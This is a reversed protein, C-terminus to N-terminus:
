RSRFSKQIAKSARACLWFEKSSKESIGISQKSDPITILKLSALSNLTTSLSTRSYAETRTIYGMKIALKAHDQLEQFFSAYSIENTDSQRKRSLHLHVWLHSELTSLLAEPIFIGCSKNVLQQRDQVKKIWGLTVYRNILDCMNESFEQDSPLLYDHKLLRGFPLIRELTVENYLLESIAILSPGVLVHICSNKYFDATFRKPGPVSFIEQGLCTWKEVLGGRLLDDLLHEEGNMFLNLSETFGAEGTSKQSSRVVEIVQYLNRITEVLKKRELVYGPSMLLAALALGTLTIDGQDKIRRVILNGFEQVQFRKENSESIYRALSLPESFRVVVEGYKTRLLSGASLLSSLSEKRKKVGTNEEGFIKGEVVNEYTVSVPVFMIDRRIGKLQVECITKLLGLKPPLTRGSRSRTGEIFFELLHGRKVLYSVYRRLVIAHIRDNKVARKIFFAGVGRIFYGVPWFNLNEGAAVLPPSLNSRYLVSSIIIYDLHSRHAPVLVVPSNRAMTEFRELGCVRVRSFLRSILLQTIIDLIYFCFRLPNAAMSYFAKRAQANMSEVSTGSREAALRCEREYDQGGLVIREQSARSQLPTGRVLKLNRYFDLKLGRQLELKKPREFTLADGLRVILLRRGLLLGVQLWRNLTLNPLGKLPGRGYFINLTHLKHNPQNQLLESLISSATLSAFYITNPDRKAPDRDNLHAINCVDNLGMRSAFSFLLSEVFLSEGPTVITFSSLDPGLKKLHPPLNVTNFLIGLIKRM